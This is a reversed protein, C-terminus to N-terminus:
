RGYESCCCVYQLSEPLQTWELCTQRETPPRNVFQHGYQKIFQHCDCQQGERNLHFAPGEEGPRQFSRCKPCSKAKCKTKLEGCGTCHQPKRRGTAGAGDQQLSEAALEEWDFQEGLRALMATPVATFGSRVVTQPKTAETDRKRKPSM